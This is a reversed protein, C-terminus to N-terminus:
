REWEEYKKCFMESIKLGITHALERVTPHAGPAARQSLLAHWESTYATMMMESKVCLPLLSRAMQPSLGDARAERYFRECHTLNELFRDKTEYEWGAFDAPLVFCVEGGHREATYDCYRTSEVSFSACRHRVLEDVTGRDTAIKVSIRLEHGPKPEATMFELDSLWEREYIVRYNTSIYYGDTEAKVVSHPEDRYRIVVDMGRAESNVKARPVFLYVAGHELVSLHRREILREVFDAASTETTKHESKYCVRAGAEVQRLIGELGPGQPVIYATQTIVNM